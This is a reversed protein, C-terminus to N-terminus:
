AGGPGVLGPDSVSVTATPVPMGDPGSERPLLSVAVQAVRAGHVFLGGDSGAWVPGAFHDFLAEAVDRLSPAAIGAQLVASLQTEVAVGMVLQRDHDRPPLYSLAVVATPRRDALDQPTLAVLYPGLTVMTRSTRAPRDVAPGTDAAPRTDAAPGTDAATDTDTDAAAATDAATDAIAQDTTM